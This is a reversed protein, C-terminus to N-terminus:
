CTLGDPPLQGRHKGSMSLSSALVRPALSRWSEELERSELKRYAANARSVKLQDDVLWVPDALIQLLTGVVGDDDKM